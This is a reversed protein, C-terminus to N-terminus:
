RRRGEVLPMQITRQLHAIALLAQAPAMMHLSPVPAILLADAPTLIARLTAPLSLSAFALVVTQLGVLVKMLLLQVVVPVNYSQQSFGQCRLKCINSHTINETDCVPRYLESNHAPLILTVQLIGAFVTTHTDKVMAGYTALVTTHQIRPIVYQVICSRVFVAPPTVVGAM